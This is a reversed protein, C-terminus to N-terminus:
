RRDALARDVCAHAKDGAPLNGTGEWWREDSARALMKCSGVHWVGAPHDVGARDKDARRRVFTGKAAIAYQTAEPTAPVGGARCESCLHGDDPLVDRGEWTEPKRAERIWRCDPAHWPGAGRDATARARVYKGLATIRAEMKDRRYVDQAIDAPFLLFDTLWEAVDERGARAAIHAAEEVGGPAAAPAVVALLHRVVDPWSRIKMGFERRLESALEQVAQDDGQSETM